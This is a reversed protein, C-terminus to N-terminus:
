LSSSLSTDHSMIFMVIALLNCAKNKKKTKNTPKKKNKKSNQELLVLSVKEFILSMSPHIHLKLHTDDIFIYKCCKRCKNEASKLWTLISRKPWWEYVTRLYEVAFYFHQVIWQVICAHTQTCPEQFGSTINWRTKYQLLNKSSKTHQTRLNYPLFSHHILCYILSPPTSLYLTHHIQTYTITGFAQSYQSLLATPAGLHGIGKVNIWKSRDAIGPKIFPGRWAPANPFTHTDLQFATFLLLALQAELQPELPSSWLATVWECVGIAMHM